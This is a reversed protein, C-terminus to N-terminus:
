GAFDTMEHNQSARRGGRRRRGHRRGKTGIRKQQEEPPLAQIETWWEVMERDVEGCRARLLLFDYAARFRKHQLLRAARSGRRQNFRWQM